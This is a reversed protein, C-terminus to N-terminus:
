INKNYGFKGANKMEAVVQLKKSIKNHFDQSADSFPSNLAKIGKPKASSIGPSESESASLEPMSLKNLVIIVMTLLNM